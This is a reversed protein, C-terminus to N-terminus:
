SDVFLFKSKYSIKNLTVFNFYDLLYYIKTLNIFVYM